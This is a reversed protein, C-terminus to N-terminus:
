KSAMRAWCDPSLSPHDERTADDSDARRMQQAANWARNFALKAIRVNDAPWKGMSQEDYYKSWVKDRSVDNM